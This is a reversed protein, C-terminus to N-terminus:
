KRFWVITSTEDSAGIMTVVAKVRNINAATFMLTESDILFNLRDLSQNATADLSYRMTASEPDWHRQINGDAPASGSSNFPQPYEGAKVVEEKLDGTESLSYYTFKIAGVVLISSDMVTGSVTVPMNVGMKITGTSWTFPRSLGNESIANEYDIEVLQASNITISGVKPPIVIIRDLTKNVFAVANNKVKIQIGLTSKEDILQGTLVLAEAVFDSVIPIEFDAKAWLDGLTQADTLKVASQLWAPGSIVRVGELGAIGKGKVRVAVGANESLANAYKAPYKARLYYAELVQITSSPHLTSGLSVSAVGSPLSLDLASYAGEHAIFGGSIYGGIKTGAINILGFGDTLVISAGLDSGGEGSTYSFGNQAGPIAPLLDFDGVRVRDNTLLDLSYMQTASFKTVPISFRGTEDVSLEEILGSSHNILRVIYSVAPHDKSDLFVSGSLDSLISEPPAPPDETSPEQSAGAGSKGDNGCSLPIGYCLMTLFGLVIPHIGGNTM